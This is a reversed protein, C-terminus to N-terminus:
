FYWRCWAGYEDRYKRAVKIADEKTDYGSKKTGKAIREELLDIVYWPLQSTDHWPKLILTGLRQSVFFRVCIPKGRKSRGYCKPGQDVRPKKPLIPPIYKDQKKKKRRVVIRKKAGKNGAITSALESLREM